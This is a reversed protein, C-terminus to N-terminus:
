APHLQMGVRMVEDVHSIFISGEEIRATKVQESLMAIAIEAALDTCTLEIKTKPLYKMTQTIGRYTIKRETSAGYESVESTRFKGIGAKTLMERLVEFEHPEVIAEIKKM